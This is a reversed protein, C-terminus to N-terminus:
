DRGPMVGSVVYEWASNSGAYVVQYGGATLVDVVDSMQEDRLVRWSWGETSGLPPLPPWSQSCRVRRFGRPWPDESQGMEKSLYKGVYAAAYEATELQQADAQYGLGCERANDKYWRKCLHATCVLHAHLRGDGHKEPVLIYDWHGVSRSIRKRLAPWAYKFIALTASADLREHSTLTVFSLHAGAAQLARAGLWTRACWRARNIQACVPCAWLKCRPRFFIARRLSHSIGLMQPRGRAECDGSM